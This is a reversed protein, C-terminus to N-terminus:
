GTQLREPMDEVGLAHLRLAFAAGRRAPGSAGHGNLPAGSTGNSAGQPEGPGALAGAGNGGGGPGTPDAQREDLLVLEGGMRAALERGIALGLGFGGHGSTQRGRRFREFILDREDAPVGPGEDRVVVTGDTFVQVEITSHAPAVRLANDLLIRVVRAVAGPDASVWASAPPADIHLTVDREAARLEMEAIVARALETLEVPEARLTVQADLRSLDLLDSALHSLRRSQERAHATRERADELDLRSPNLDDVILELLGDLSALPTRLEHSATAVFARLAADQQALRGQMSKLTRALEGIEDRGPKVDL